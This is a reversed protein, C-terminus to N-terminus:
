FITIVQFSINIKNGYKISNDILNNICRQVLNKRGNMRIDKILKHSINKNEYKKIISEILETLSFNETKEKYGSSAFQLYENLM